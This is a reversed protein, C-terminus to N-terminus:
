AGSWSGMWAGAAIAPWSRTTRRATNNSREATRSATASSFIEGAFRRSPSARHRTRRSRGLGTWTGNATPTPLSSAINARARAMSFRCPRVRGTRTLNRAYDKFVPDAALTLKAGDVSALKGFYAGGAAALTMMERDANFIQQVRNCAYYIHRCYNSWFTTIDNGIALLNNGSVLNDEFILRETNEISYGRGGYCIQNRAIVGTKANMIRLGYNSAYISSAIFLSNSM